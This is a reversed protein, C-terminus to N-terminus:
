KNKEQQLLPKEDLAAAAAPAPWRADTALGQWEMGRLPGTESVPVATPRITQHDNDHDNDHNSQPHLSEIHYINKAGLNNKGIEQKM